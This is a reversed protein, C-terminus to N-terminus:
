LKWYKTKKQFEIYSYEEGSDFHNNYDPCYTCTSPFNNQLIIDRCKRLEPGNWGAQLSDQKIETISDSLACVKFKFDPTIIGTYFFNICGSIRNRNSIVQNEEKAYYLIQSNWRIIVGLEDATKQAINVARSVQDPNDKIFHEEKISPTNYYTGECVSITRINNLYSFKVINELEDINFTFCTTAINLFPRKGPKRITNILQINKKIVEFNGGRRIFSYTNNDISDVSISLELCNKLLKRIISENLLSGNTLISYKINLENLLDILKEFEPYLLPEGGTLRLIAIYKYDTRLMKELRKFDMDVPNVSYVNDDLSSKECMICNYNCKFSLKIILISPTKGASNIKLYYASINKIFNLIKLFSLNFILNLLLHIRTKFFIYNLM